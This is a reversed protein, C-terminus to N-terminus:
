NWNNGIRLLSNDKTYFILCKSYKGLFELGFLKIAWLGSYISWSFMLISQTKRWKGVKKKPHYRKIDMKSTQTKLSNIYLQKLYKPALHLQKMIITQISQKLTPLLLLGYIERTQNLVVWIISILKSKHKSQSLKLM